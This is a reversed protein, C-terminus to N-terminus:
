GVRPVGNTELVSMDNGFLRSDTDFLLFPVAVLEFTGVPCRSMQSDKAEGSGCPVFYWLGEAGWGACGRWVLGKLSVDDSSGLM